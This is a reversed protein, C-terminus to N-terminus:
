ISSLSKEQDAYNCDSQSVFLSQTVSCSQSSVSLGSCLTIYGTELRIIPRCAMGAQSPQTCTIPNMTVKAQTVLQTRILSSKITVTVSLTSSNMKVEETSRLSTQEGIRDFFNDTMTLRVSLWDATQESLIVPGTSRWDNRDTGFQRNENM